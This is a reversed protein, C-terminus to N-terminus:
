HPPSQPTQSRWALWCLALAALHTTLPNFAQLLLHPSFLAVDVLLGILLAGALLWILLASVVRM